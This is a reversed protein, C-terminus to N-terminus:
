SGQAKALWFNDIAEAISQHAEGERHSVWSLYGIIARAEEATFGAFRESVHEFWTREGYLRHNVRNLKGIDDLGHTLHFSPTETMLADGLDALLFAPLYFRFAAASLFGLGARDLFAADLRRWDDCGRYLAEVEYPECGLDSGRLNDDGPYPATFAARIAATLTELDPPPPAHAVPGARSPRPLRGHAAWFAEQDLRAHDLWFNALAEEVRRRQDDQIVPDDRCRILFAVVAGAEAPTLPRLYRSRMDVWSGGSGQFYVDLTCHFDTLGDTLVHQARIRCGIDSDAALLLAPLYFRFGGSSLSLWDATTVAAANMARWDEPWLAPREQGPTHLISGGFLAAGAPRRADRFAEHVRARFDDDIGAM